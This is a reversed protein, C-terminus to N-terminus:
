GRMLVILLTQTIWYAASHPLDHCDEECFFVLDVVNGFSRLRSQIGSELLM